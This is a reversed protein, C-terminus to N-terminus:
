VSLLREFFSRYRRLAQRLDETSVEDGRDWQRELGAREDAFMQALRQMVEAVLSDAQEVSKRPEDVFQTQVDQWRERFAEADSTAFLPAQETGASSSTMSAGSGNGSGNTATATGGGNGSASSQSGSSSEPGDARDPRIESEVGTGARQPSAAMDATTLRGQEREGGTRENM